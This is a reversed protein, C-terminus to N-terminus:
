VQIIYSSRFAIGTQNVVGLVIHGDSFLKSTNILLVLGSVKVQM